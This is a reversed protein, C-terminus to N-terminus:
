QLTIPLAITAPLGANARTITKMKWGSRLVPAFNSNTPNDFSQATFTANTSTGNAVTDPEVLSAFSGSYVVWKGSIKEVDGSTGGGGDNLYGTGTGNTGTYYIQAPYFVGDFPIFVQHGTSTLVTAGERTSSLVRGLVVSAGDVLTVGPTSTPLNTLGAGNGHIVGLTDIRLRTANANQDYIYFDDVVSTADPAKNQGVWWTRFGTILSLAAPQDGTNSLSVAPSTTSTSIVAGSQLTGAVMAYGVAAIRQDPTLLQSGNTGNDFWVRLRVDSNAFVSNSIATMNPVSADGLLVSYLGKTVTLTVAATPQSGGSSTGDNSWYSITGAANVLAFKFQGSGDFNVPPTGVAVRGQYNILQPVQAHLIDFSSHLLVFALISLKLASHRHTTKM